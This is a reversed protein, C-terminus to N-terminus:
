PAPAVPVFGGGGHMSAIVADAVLAAQLADRATALPSATGSVLSEVWARNQLRYAEAFRPRWDAAYGRSRALAEDRVVRHPEVLSASSMSGVIECRTDYGYRANLFIDVTVLAGDATRLLMFQPDQRDGVEPSQRPALWSVEVVPSSLLWPVIDFDHIASGTVSLEDNGAPASVGRGVSHVALPVGLDGADVLAKLDVYGPDFRRMFGVSVLPVGDGVREDEAAVIAACEAATPALPKECLVPKHLALCARVYEVHTADSSAVLVADVDDSGIVAHADETAAAGPISAAVEEARDAFVDAIMVVDANPVDRHLIRAHDAGMIGAGIVGIRM